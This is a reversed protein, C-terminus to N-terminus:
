VWRLNRRDGHRDVRRRARLLFPARVVFPEARAPRVGAHGQDLARARGLHTTLQLGQQPPAQPQRRRQQTRAKRHKHDPVRKRELPTPCANGQESKVQANRQHQAQRCPEQVAGQRDREVPQPDGLQGDEARRRRKEHGQLDRRGNVVRALPLEHEIGTRPQDQNKGVRQEDRVRDPTRRRHDARHGNDRDHHQHHDAPRPRAHGARRRGHVQGRDRQQQDNRRDARHEAHVRDAVQALLGELRPLEALVPQLLPDACPPHALHKEGLVLQELPGAHDLEDAGVLGAVGLGQGAELALDAGRRPEGMPVRHFDEIVAARVLADEVVHHLVQGAHAQRVQHFPVPRHRRLPDNVQQALCAVSQGLGM